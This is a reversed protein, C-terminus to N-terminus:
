PQARQPRALALVVTMAYAVLLLWKASACGAALPYPLQVGLRPVETLWWHWVNEGADFVAAWPLAWTVWIRYWRRRPAFFRTHTALLYGFGGYSLLLACDIPLHLRFRHLQEPSWAHVVSGFARPSFAFQLVLVGPELPALYWALGAFLVLATIGTCWVLGTHTRTSLKHVDNWDAFFFAM